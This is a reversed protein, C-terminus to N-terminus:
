VGSHGAQSFSQGFTNAGSPGLEAETWRNGPLQGSGSEGGRWGCDLLLCLGM